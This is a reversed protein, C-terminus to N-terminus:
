SARAVISQSLVSEDYSLARWLYLKKKVAQHRSYRDVQTM